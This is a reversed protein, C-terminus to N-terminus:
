NKFRFISAEVSEEIFTNLYNSLLDLDLKTEIHLVTRFQNGSCDFAKILHNELEMLKESSLFDDFEHGDTRDFTIDIRDNSTKGDYRLNVVRGKPSKNQVYHPNELDDLYLNLRLRSTVTKLEFRNSFESQRLNDNIKNTIHRILEQAFSKSGRKSGAAWTNWFVGEDVVTFNKDGQEILTYDERKFKNKIFKILSRFLLDAHSSGPNILADREDKLIDYLLDTVAIRSEDPDDTSKEWPINVKYDLNDNNSKELLQLNEWQVNASTKGPHSVLKPTLYIFIIPIKQEKNVAITQGDVDERLSTYQEQLQKSNGKSAGENIKNEIIVILDPTTEKYFRIVLDLDSRRKTDPDKSIVELDISILKFTNLWKHINGRNKLGLQKFTSEGQSYFIDIFKSLPNFKYGHPATPDLIFALVSSMQPENVRGDGYCLIEFINM